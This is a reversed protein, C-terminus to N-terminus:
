LALAKKNNNQNINHTNDVKSKNKNNEKWFIVNKYCNRKQFPKKKLQSNRILCLLKDLLGFHTETNQIKSSDLLKTKGTYIM